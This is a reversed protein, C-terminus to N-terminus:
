LGSWRGVVGSFATRSSWAFWRVSVRDGSFGGWACCLMVSSVHVRKLLYVSPQRALMGNDIQMCYIECYHLLMFKFALQLAGCMVWVRNYYVSWTTSATTDHFVAYHDYGRRESHTGSLMAFSPFVSACFVCVVRRTPRRNKDSSDSRDNDCLVCHPYKVQTWVCSLWLVHLCDAAAASTSCMRVNARAGHSM